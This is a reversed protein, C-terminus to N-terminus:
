NLVMIVWVAVAAPRSVVNVPANGTRCSTHNGLLVDNSVPSSASM